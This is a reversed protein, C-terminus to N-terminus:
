KSVKYIDHFDNNNIIFLLKQKDLDVSLMNRVDKDVFLGSEFNSVYNFIGQSNGKLFAGIGADARTTEVESQYNNGALLLDKHGDGDFDDFLMSNIPSKQIENSFPEFNFINGGENIFIGSRFENAEYHLASKIGPGVIGELDRNAFDQYTKIKTKLHPMQQATCGKGRVPVQKDNYYKALFVDESGNYDFDSTYIHFPKEKSAHFKYNLGLNGAIIDQDGDNDVDVILLKNWWGKTTNLVEYYDTKELKGNTNLFVEISMWEGTVILDLDKDNDIDFWHADTVMGINELKPSLNKTENFFTGENNILLYSNPAYPYKAPIVRGGVFLDIDGDNDYDCSIVVSGASYIEPLNNAKLFKGKGNNLYLRDQLLRPNRDFEYSGSVVYLDQDGDNDADFFCAGTDEQQKDMTFIQSNMVKFTGAKQGFLLQGPQGHGGGIFVDEIGDENIDAKALAPGTQSLKHPLLVQRSYDNFYPDIHKYNSAIKNFLKNKVVTSKEEKNSVNGNLYDVSLIQNASVNTLEEKKGDQWIIQVKKITKYEGIGFHLNNSTSSLFGRTNMLQRVMKVGNELYVNVKAGIGFKNKEPGSFSIELFNGKNLNRANNQLVTAEDNINNVVIDLDGDNDLDAYTAGNSFTPKSNIWKDSTDEFTLDGNNKFFYNTLKQQPLMQAFKLFDEKTPKRNNKRLEDLIENNKDRDIVDRYVGNTVYIDNFGDLDFDASLLAWSWDTDGIDAMKSIEGFTGNGNNLQLMNHMYQYHYGNATMKEFQSISTMGMTTKSRIYDKPNMDLTMIDLLGDNNIDAVDGGMSNFSMHKVVNDRSETFTGDGNNLYAFDPMNFDNNVYIDLWGDNNFDIVEPNLGFASEPMIGAKLSVDTFHGTGDNNYLRDSGKLQITKPHVQLKKLDFVATQGRNIIDAANSVYVDLDNDNDYDFFIAQITRNKDALGLEEAKETFTLDGNNIYLLNAFRNNEDIWGGRSVYIDLLRDNNVDVFTVGTDFGPKNIIGAKKSIDEFKFDGKNLYLKNENSNSTFFLDVLGDNNIDGSAVGSGIYMYNYQFYNADITEELKNIFDIGTKNSSLSTFLKEKINNEEIQIDTKKEEKCSLIVVLLFSFLILIKRISQLNKFTKM